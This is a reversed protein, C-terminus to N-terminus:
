RRPLQTFQQLKCLSRPPPNICILQPFRRSKGLDGEVIGDLVQLAFAKQFCGVEHDFQGVSSEDLVLQTQLPRIRRGFVEGDLHDLLEVRGDADHLGASM